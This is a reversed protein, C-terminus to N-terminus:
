TCTVLVIRTLLSTCLEDLDRRVKPSFMRESIRTLTPTKRGTYISVFDRAYTRLLFVLIYAPLRLIVYEKPDFMNTLLINQTPIASVGSYQQQTQQPLMSWTAHPSMGMAPTQQDFMVAKEENWMGMRLVYGLGLNLNNFKVLARKADSGNEYTVYGYNKSKGHEDAAIEIDLVPGVVSFLHKFDDIQLADPVPRFFLRTIDDDASGHHSPTDSSTSRDSESQRVLIARGELPTNSCQIARGVASEETFQVFAFGKSRGSHRDRIIRTDVVPGVRQQFFEFLMREDVSLALNCVFVTCKMRAEEEEERKRREEEVDDVTSEVRSGSRRKRGRRRSSSDSSENGSSSYNDVRDRSRDRKRSRRRRRREDDDDDDDSRDYHRRKRRYEDDDNPHYKEERERERDGDDVDNNREHEQIEGHQNGENNDENGIPRYKGNTTTTMTSSVSSPLNNNESIM